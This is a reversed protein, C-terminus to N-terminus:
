SSPAPVRKPATQTAFIYVGETQEQGLEEFTLPTIGLSGDDAASSCGKSGKATRLTCLM